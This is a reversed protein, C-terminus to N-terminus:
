QVHYTISQKACQTSHVMWFPYALTTKNLLFIYTSLDLIFFFRRAKLLVTRWWRTILLNCNWIEWPNLPHWLLFSLIWGKQTCPTGYSLTPHIKQKCFICHFLKTFRMANSKGWLIRDIKRMLPTEHILCWQRLNVVAVIRNRNHIQPLLTSLLHDSWTKTIVNHLYSSILFSM